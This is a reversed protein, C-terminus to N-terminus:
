QGPVAHCDTPGPRCLKTTVKQEARYAYNVSAIGALTRYLLNPVYAFPSSSAASEPLVHGRQLVSVVFDACNPGMFCYSPDTGGSLKEAKVANGVFTLMAQTDASSTKFYNMGVTSPDQGERAAAQRALAALSSSTPLGDAGLKVKVSLKKVKIRGVGFM